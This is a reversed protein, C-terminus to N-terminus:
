PAQQSHQSDRRIANGTNNKELVISTKWNNILKLVM